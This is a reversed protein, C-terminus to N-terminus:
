IIKPMNILNPFDFHDFDFYDFLYHDFHDFKLESRKLCFCFIQKLKINFLLGQALYFMIFNNQAQCLEAGM